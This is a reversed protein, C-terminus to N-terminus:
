ARRGLYRAAARQDRAGDAGPGARLAARRRVAGPDTGFRDAIIGGLPQGIGWLLNQLALAFAFVDRGWHNATSMPTLFFGLTSRPGFAIIAILCGSGIVLSPTRWSGIQSPFQDDHRGPLAIFEFFGRLM